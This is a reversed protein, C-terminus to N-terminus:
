VKIYTIVYNLYNSCKEIIYRLTVEPMGRKIIIKVNNTFM